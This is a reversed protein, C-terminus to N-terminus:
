NHFHVLSHLSCLLMYLSHCRGDHHSSGHDCGHSLCVCQLGRDEPTTNRSHLPDLPLDHVFWNDGCLVSATVTFSLSCSSRCYLVVTCVLTNSSRRVVIPRGAMLRMLGSSKTAAYAALSTVGLGGAFYAYTKNIRQRM